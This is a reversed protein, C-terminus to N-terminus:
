CEERISQSVVKRCTQTGGCVVDAWRDLVALVSRGNRRLRLGSCPKRRSVPIPAATNSPGAWNARRTRGGEAPARGERAGSTTM